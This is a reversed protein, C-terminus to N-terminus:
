VRDKPVLASALSQLLPEESELCRDRVRKLLEGAATEDWFWSDVERYDVAPGGGSAAEYYFSKLDFSATRLETLASSQERVDQEGQNMLRDLRKWAEVPGFTVVGTRGTVSLNREYLASLSSVEQTFIKGLAEPPAKDLAFHQVPPLFAGDIGREPPAEEPFDELIPGHPRELLGLVALLVKRQFSRDSPTGFPRGFDFPVWLARPPRIRESHERILSIQTTALGEEEIYHAL